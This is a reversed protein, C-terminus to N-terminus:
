LIMNRLLSLKTLQVSPLNIVHYRPFRYQVRWKLVTILFFLDITIMFMICYIIEPKARM